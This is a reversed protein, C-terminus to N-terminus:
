DEQLAKFHAVASEGLAELHYGGELLSVIHGGALKKVTRTMRAFDAAELRQRGLPDLHHADFGASVLLFEPKFRKLEPLILNDLASHWLEAPVGPPMPVNLNTNDKGREEAFGTGPFHPHQHISVYYVTDDDYFAHQTGNGHHVDWDLIAVRKLGAVDRLWRAAIAVNNFLCFGMARDREAHHGPPRMAWFVNDYQGDLVAKCGAIAGGAALLAADWSGDGMVTDPDPYPLNNACTMEITDIHHATHVRLLDERTAPAVDLRPPNLGAKEFAEVIATLRAPSEPHFQGTDHWLSEERFVFGTKAM